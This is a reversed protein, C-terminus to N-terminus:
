EIPDEHLPQGCEPCHNDKYRLKIAARRVDRMISSIRDEADLEDNLSLDISEVELLFKAVETSEYMLDDLQNATIFGSMAGYLFTAGSKKIKAEFAHRAQNVAQPSYPKTMFPVLEPLHTGIKTMEIGTATRFDSCLRAIAWERATIYTRDRLFKNVRDYSARDIKSFRDYTRVDEPISSDSANEHSFNVEELENEPPDEAM